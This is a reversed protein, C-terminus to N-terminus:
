VEVNRFVRLIMVIIRRVRVMGEDMDKILRGERRIWFEM